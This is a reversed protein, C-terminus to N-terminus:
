GFRIVPVKQGRRKAESELRPALSRGAGLMATAAGIKGGALSWDGLAREFNFRTRGNEVKVVGVFTHNEQGTFKEPHGHVTLCAPGEHIDPAGRGTGLDVAADSLSGPVVPICVPWGGELVTLDCLPLGEFAKAALPRWDDPPTRWAPPAAGTPDPDSSPLETGDPARWEAPTGGLARDQWWRIRLPTIEIWIRAYYFLLKKLIFKPQGKTAEPVKKGSERVYRDTNAQLDADRVSAHGQVLVVPADKMGAGVPDAFLLSVNPNHRAREAKAAYSLGTSVDLTGKAGIYPTTPVTIPVGARTLSSYECTISRSFVDSLEEPWDSM